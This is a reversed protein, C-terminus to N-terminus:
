QGRTPLPGGDHHTIVSRCVCVCVCGEEAPVNQRKHVDRERPSRLTRSTVTSLSLLSKVDQHKIKVSLSKPLYNLFTHEGTRRAPSTMRPVVVYIVEMAALCPSVRHRADLRTSTLPRREGSTEGIVKTKVKTRSEASQSTGLVFSGYKPRVNRM